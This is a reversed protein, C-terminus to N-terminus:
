WSQLRGVGRMYDELENATHIILDCGPNYTYEIKLSTDAQRTFFRVTYFEGNYDAVQLNSPQLNTLIRNQNETITTVRKTTM